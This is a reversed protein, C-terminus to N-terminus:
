QRIQEVLKIIERLDDNNDDLNKVQEWWYKWDDVLLSWGLQQYVIRGAEECKHIIVTRQSLWEEMFKFKAEEFLQIEERTMKDKFMIVFASINTQNFERFLGINEMYSLLNGYKNKVYECIKDVEDSNFFNGSKLEEIEGIEEISYCIQEICDSDEFLSLQEPTKMYRGSNM